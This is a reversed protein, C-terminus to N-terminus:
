FSSPIQVTMAGRSGPKFCFTNSTTDGQSGVQSIEVFALDRRGDNSHMFSCNFRPLSTIISRHQKNIWMMKEAVSVREEPSLRYLEDVAPAFDEKELWSVLRSAVSLAEERRRRRVEDLPLDASAATSQRGSAAGRVTQMVPRLLSKLLSKSM